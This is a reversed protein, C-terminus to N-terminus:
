TCLNENPTRQQLFTKHNWRVSRFPMANLCMFVNDEWYRNKRFEYVSLLMLYCAFRQYRIKGVNYLLSTSFILGGILAHNKVAGIKVFSV